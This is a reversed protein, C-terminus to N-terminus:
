YKPYVILLISAFDFVVMREEIAQTKECLAM